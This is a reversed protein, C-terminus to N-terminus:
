YPAIVASNQYYSFSFNLPVENNICSIKYAGQFMGAPKGATRRSQRLCIRRLRLSPLCTKTAGANIDPNLHLYNSRALQWRCESLISQM